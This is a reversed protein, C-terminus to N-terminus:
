VLMWPKRSREERGKGTPAEQSGGEKKNFSSTTVIRKGM